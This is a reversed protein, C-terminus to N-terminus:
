TQPKAGSGLKIKWKVGDEGRVVIKPNSGEMDEEVFTLTSPPQHETGGPGYLLNRSTIDTPERWLVPTGTIEGTEGAPKDKKKEGAVAPILLLVTALFFPFM